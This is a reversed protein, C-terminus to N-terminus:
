FNSINSQDFINQKNSDGDCMYFITILYHIVGYSLGLMLVIINVYFIIYFKFKQPLVM